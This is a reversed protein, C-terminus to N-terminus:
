ENKYGMNLLKGVEYTRLSQGVLHLMMNAHADGDKLPKGDELDDDMTITFFESRETLTHINVSEDVLKTSDMMVKCRIQMQKALNALFMSPRQKEVEKKFQRSVLDKYQMIAYAYSYSPTCNEDYNPIRLVSEDFTSFRACATRGDLHPDM